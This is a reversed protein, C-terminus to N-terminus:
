SHIIRCGRVGKFCACHRWILNKWSNCYLQVRAVQARESDEKCRGAAPTQSFKISSLVNKWTRVVVVLVEEAEIEREELPKEHRKICDTKLQIAYLM